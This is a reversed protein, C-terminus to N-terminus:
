RIGFAASLSPILMLSPHGLADSVGLLSPCHLCRGFLWVPSALGRTRNIGLGRVHHQLCYVGKGLECIYYHRARAGNIEM